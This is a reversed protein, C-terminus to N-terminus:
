LFVYACINNEFLSSQVLANSAEPKSSIAVCAALLLFMICSSPLRSLCINQTHALLLLVWLLCTQTALLVQRRKHTNCLTANWLFDCVIDGQDQWVCMKTAAQEVCMFFRSHICLKPMHASFSKLSLEARSRFPLMVLLFYLLIISLYNLQFFTPAKTM